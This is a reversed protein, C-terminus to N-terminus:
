TLPKARIPITSHQARLSAIASYHARLSAKASYPTKAEPGYLRRSPSSVALNPLHCFEEQRNLVFPYYGKFVWWEM